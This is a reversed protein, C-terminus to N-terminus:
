VCFCFVLNWVFYCPQFAANAYAIQSYPEFYGLALLWVWRTPTFLRASIGRPNSVWPGWFVRLYFYRFSTPDVCVWDHCPSWSDFHHQRPRLCLGFCPMRCAHLLAHKAYERTHCTWWAKIRCRSQRVWTHICSTTSCGMMEIHTDLGRNTLMTCTTVRSLATRVSHSCARIGSRLM